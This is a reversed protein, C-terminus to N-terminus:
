FDMKESIKPFNKEFKFIVALYKKLDVDLINPLANQQRKGGTAGDLGLIWDICQITQQYWTQGIDLGLQSLSSMATLAANGEGVALAPAVCGESDLTANHRFIELPKEV